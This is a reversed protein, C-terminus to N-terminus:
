AGERVLRGRNFIRKPDFSNRIRENLAALGPPQPHFVDIARRLEEAGRILTAHGGRAAALQRVLAAGADAKPPVVAWILGGGWDCIVEGDTERALAAGLAVGSAPPCVIRWAPWSGLPGDAAFPRVDRISSWLAQSMGEVIIGASGFPKLAAALAATRHSVSAAIGELRLLTTAERASGLQDFGAVEGRM